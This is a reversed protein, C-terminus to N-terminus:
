GATERRTETITARDLRMSIADGGTRSARVPLDVGYWDAKSGCLATPNTNWM